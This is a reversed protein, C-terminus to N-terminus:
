PNLPPATSLRKPWYRSRTFTLGSEALATPEIARFDLALTPTSRPRWATIGAELVALGKDSRFGSATVRTGLPVSVVGDVSGYTDIETWEGQGTGSWCHGLAVWECHQGPEPKADKLWQWPAPLPRPYQDMARWYTREPDSVFCGNDNNFGTGGIGTYYRGVGQDTYSDAVFKWECRQGPTPQLAALCHWGTKQYDQTM